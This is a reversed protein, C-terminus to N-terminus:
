LTGGGLPGRHHCSAPRCRDRCPQGGSSISAPHACPPLDDPSELAPPVTSSVISVKSVGFRGAVNHSEAIARTECFTGPTFILFSTAGFM